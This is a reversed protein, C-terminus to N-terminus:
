QRKLGNVAVWLFGITLSEAKTESTNSCRLGQGQANMSYAVRHIFVSPSQERMIRIWLGCKRKTVKSGIGCVVISSPAQMVVLSTKDKSAKKQWKTSGGYDDVM